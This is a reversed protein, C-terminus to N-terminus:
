QMWRFAKRIELDQLSQWRTGPTLGLYLTDFLAKEPTAIAFRGWTDSAQTGELLDPGLRHFVFRGVPTDRTPRILRDDCHECNGSSCHTRPAKGGLTVLFLESSIGEGLPHERPARFHLPLRTEGDGFPLRAAHRDAGRVRGTLRSGRVVPRHNRSVAVNAHEENM